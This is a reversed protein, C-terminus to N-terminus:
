ARQSVQAPPFLRLTEKVVADLLPLSGPDTLAAAGANIIEERLADQIDQHEALMQAARSLAASTTDAGAFMTVRIHALVEAEPIRHILNSARSARGTYHLDDGHMFLVSSDAYLM